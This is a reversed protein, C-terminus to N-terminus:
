RCTLATDATCGAEPSNAFSITAFVTVRCHVGGVDPGAGVPYMRSPPSVGPPVIADIGIPVLGTNVIATGM